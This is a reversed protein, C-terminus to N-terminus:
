RQCDHSQQNYIEMKAPTNRETGFKRKTFKSLIGWTQFEKKLYRMEWINM